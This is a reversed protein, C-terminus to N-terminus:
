VANFATALVAGALNLWRFRLVRAQALSLVVLASGVWGIVQWWAM